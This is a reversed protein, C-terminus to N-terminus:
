LLLIILQLFRLNGATPLKVMEHFYKEFFLRTCLSKLEGIQDYFIICRDPMNHSIPQLYDSPISPGGHIILLPKRDASQILDPRYMVYSLNLSVHQIPKDGRSRKVTVLGERKGDDRRNFTGFHGSRIRRRRSHMM